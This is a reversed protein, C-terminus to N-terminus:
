HLMAMNMNGTILESGGFQIWDGQLQLSYIHYVCFRYITHVESFIVWYVRDYSMLEKNNLFYDCGM